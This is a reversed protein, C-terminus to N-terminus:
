YDRVTSYTNGDAQFSVIRGNCTQATITKGESRTLAVLHPNRALCAEKDGRRRESCLMAIATWKTHDLMMVSGMRRVTGTITVLPPGNVVCDAKHNKRQATVYLLGVFLLFFFLMFGALFKMGQSTKPKAAAVSSMAKSDLVSVM